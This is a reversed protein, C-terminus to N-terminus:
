HKRAYSTKGEDDLWKLTLEQMPEFNFLDKVYKSLEDIKMERDLNVSIM